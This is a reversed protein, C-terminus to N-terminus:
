KETWQFYDTNVIRRYVSHCQGCIFHDLVNEMDPKGDILRVPQGEVYDMLAGCRPCPCHGDRDRQLTVPLLEGTSRIKKLLHHKKKKVPKKVPASDHESLVPASDAKALPFADYYGSQLVERYYVGCTDCEYKPKINEMDLHGDVVRVAGGDVFDLTRGCTPCILNGDEQKELKKLTM